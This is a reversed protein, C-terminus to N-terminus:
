RVDRWSHPREPDILVAHVTLLVGPQLPGKVRCVPATMQDGLSHQLDTGLFVSQVRVLELDCLGIVLLDDLQRHAQFKIYHESAKEFSRREGMELKGGAFVLVNVTPAPRAHRLVAFFADSVLARQDQLQNAVQRLAPELLWARLQQMKESVNM